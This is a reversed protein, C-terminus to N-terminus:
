QKVIRKTLKMVCSGQRNSIVGSPKTPTACLKGLSTCAYHAGATRNVSARVKRSACGSEAFPKPWYSSSSVKWRLIDHKISITPISGPAMNAVRCVFPCRQGPQNRDDKIRPRVIRGWFTRCKPSLLHAPTDEITSEHPTGRANERSANEVRAQGSLDRHQLRFSANTNTTSPWPIPALCPTCGNRWGGRPPLSM